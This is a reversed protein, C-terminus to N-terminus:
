PWNQCAADEGDDERMRPDMGVGWVRLHIGADAPIVLSHLFAAGGDDERMRPDM